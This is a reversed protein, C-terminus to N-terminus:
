LHAHSSEMQEFDGHISTHQSSILGILCEYKSLTEVEGAAGQAV